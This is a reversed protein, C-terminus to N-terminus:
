TPLTRGPQHPLATGARRRPSGRPNENAPAARQPCRQGVWQIESVATLNARHSPLPGRGSEFRDITVM